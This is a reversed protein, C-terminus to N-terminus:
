SKNVLAQSRQEMEALESALFSDKAVSGGYVSPDAQLAARWCPASKERELAVACQRLAYERVDLNMQDSSVPLLPDWHSISALPVHAENLRTPLLRLPEGSPAEPVEVGAGFVYRGVIDNIPELHWYPEGEVPQAVHIPRRLAAQAVLMHFIGWEAKAELLTSVFEAIGSANQRCEQAAM